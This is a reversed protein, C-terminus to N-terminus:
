QEIKSLEEKGLLHGYDRPSLDPECSPKAASRDRGLLAPMADAKRVARFTPTVALTPIEPYAGTIGGVDSRHKSYDSRRKTPETSQYRSVRKVVTMRPCIAQLVTRHAKGVNSSQDAGTLADGGTLTNRVFLGSIPSVSVM